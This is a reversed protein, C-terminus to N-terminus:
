GGAGVVDDGDPLAGITDDGWVSFALFPSGQGHAHKARDVEDDKQKYMRRWTTQKYKKYEVNGNRTRYTTGGIVKGTEKDREAIFVNGGELVDGAGGGPDPTATTTGSGNKDTYTQKYDGHIGGGHVQMDVTQTGQNNEYSGSSDALLPVTLAAVLALAGAATRISIM